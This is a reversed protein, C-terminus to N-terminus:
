IDDNSESDSSEMDEGGEWQAVWGKIKNRNERVNSITKRNGTGTMATEYQFCKKDLFTLNGPIRRPIPIEAVYPETLYDLTSAIKKQEEPNIRADVWKKPGWFQVWAGQTEEVEDEPIARDVAICRAIYFPMVEGEPPRVVYFKKVTPTWDVWAQEGAHLSAASVPAELAAPHPNDNCM